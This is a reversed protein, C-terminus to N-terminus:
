RSRIGSIGNSALWTRLGICGHIWMVLLLAYQRLLSGYTSFVWYQYIVRGYGFELGYTSEGIRIPSAHPILLVPIALGFALQWMEGTPMRLHRRRYLAFLGLFGHILACLPRCADDLAQASHPGRVGDSRDLTDWLRSQGPTIDRLCVSGVWEDAAAAARHTADATGLQSYEV